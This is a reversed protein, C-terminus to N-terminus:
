HEEAQKPIKRGHPDYARQLQQELEQQLGPGLFHELQEAPEHVHDPPLQLHEELFTEWLRHARVLHWARRRGAPTLCVRDWAQEIWGRRGLLWLVLRAQWRGGLHELCRQRPVCAAEAPPVSGQPAPDLREYGPEQKLLWKLLDEGAITLRTGLRHAADVLVGHRPSLLVVLVLVVGAAVAMSGAVTTNFWAALAYGWLAAVWAVLVAWFLTGTVRDSLLRGCVGPVIMMAVVLISGVAEFSAVAVTAVLAMLLYHMLRPRLGAAAAMAPDFSAALLEKWALLLFGLVGLLAPALTLLSRPLEWTGLRITDLAALELLGFLVCDTDLDVHHAYRSLLVVGLAFLVPYVVGMSADDALQALQRVAQVGTATLMGVVVAGALMAWPDLRGTILFAVVLGPLVAHSIADSLLSMRRLVLFTGLLACATNCLLALGVTSWAIAALPGPWSGIWGLAWASPGGLLLALLAAAALGLRGLSRPALTPQLPIPEAPVVPWTSM